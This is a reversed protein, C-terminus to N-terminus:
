HAAALYKEPNKKFAKICKLCCFGYTKGQYDYSFKGSAGIKDGSVPCLQNVREAALLPSNSILISPVLLAALLVFSFRNKM